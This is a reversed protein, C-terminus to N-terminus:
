RSRSDGSNCIYYYDFLGNGDLDITGEVMTDTYITANDGTVSSVAPKPTVPPSTVGTIETDDGSFHQIPIVPVFSLCIIALVLM